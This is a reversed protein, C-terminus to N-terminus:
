SFHDRAGRRLLLAQLLRRDLRSPRFKAQTAPVQFYHAFSLVPVKSSLTFTGNGTLEAHAQKGTVPTLAHLVITSSVLKKSKAM